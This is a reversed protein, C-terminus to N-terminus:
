VTRLIPLIRDYERRTPDDWREDLDALGPRLIRAAERLAARRDASGAPSLATRAAVGDARAPDLALTSNGSM